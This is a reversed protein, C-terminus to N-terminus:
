LYKLIGEAFDEQRKWIREKGANSGMSSFRQYDNIAGKLIESLKLSNIDQQEALVAAKKESLFLANEKQHGYAYPYPILVAPRAFFCIEALTSAGCRSVVIDSASYLVGMDKYYPYVRYEIGMDRYVSLTRSFDKEGTLHIVQFRVNEKLLKATELFIENVFRSGGSGGFILVTKKGLDLGLFGLADKRDYVRGSVESRLPVGVSVEKPLSPHKIGLFVKKSFYALVKNALGFRANPEFIFVKVGLIRGLVAIFISNRGGFGIIKRPRFYLIVVAAEFFRLFSELVINRFGLDIGFSKFGEEKLSPKDRKNVGYFIFRYGQGSDKMYRALSLAPYLHGKTRDCGLLIRM